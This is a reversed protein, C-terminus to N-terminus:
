LWEAVYRREPPQRAVGSRGVALGGLHHRFVDDSVHIRLRNLAHRRLFGGLPSMVLDDLGVRSRILGGDGARRACPPHTCKQRSKPLSTACHNGDPKPAAEATDAPGGAHTKLVKLSLKQTRGVRRFIEALHVAGTLLIPRGCHSSSQHQWAFSSRRRPTLM